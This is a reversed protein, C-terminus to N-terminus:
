PGPEAEAKSERDELEQKLELVGAALGREGARLPQRPLLGLEKEERSLAAEANTLESRVFATQDFRHTVQVRRLTYHPRDAASQVFVVCQKGNDALASTPIEV